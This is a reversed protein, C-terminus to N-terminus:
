APAPRRGAGVADALGTELTFHPAFGLGALRAVDAEIRPPDNAPRIRAGLRILEPKGLLRSAAAIMDRVPVARGSGLNIPGAVDSSVVHALAAGVDSAHLFDREQLGDTCDVTRGARLGAVLDGLLRGEPENPGYVFFIRAWALTIDLASAAAVLLSGSAAKAAGYLTAPRLPATEALRPQLSWDYEACSGAAVVRRGGAEAFSRVLNISAVAWDLNARDTWRGQPADHWALHLLHTARTAFVAHETDARNLLDVSLTTDAGPVPAGRRTAAVVSFGRSHLARVAYRGILGTAGTVLVRM